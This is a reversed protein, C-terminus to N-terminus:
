AGGAHFEANRLSLQFGALVRATFERTTKGVGRGLLDPTRVGNCLAASVAGALTAAAGPQGIGYQLALAAALLMSSPNVVGHGALAFGSDPSPMFLSPGEEALLAHAVVRAAAPAAALETLGEAWGPAVAVVDFRSANFAALAFADRPSLREVRVHEFEASVASAADCWGTDGVCALHLSRLEAIEFARELAWGDNGEGVATVFAVDDREGFRVHTVRARLDLEDMVDALPPEDAGAVLVADASLIASRTTPPMVQAFSAYALTGFPVHESELRFGHVRSVADLAIAAQAMLEPATGSGALCALVAPRQTM